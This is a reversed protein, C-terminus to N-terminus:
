QTPDGKKQVQLQIITCVVLVAFLFYSVAASYGLKNKDFAQQYIYQIMPRTSNAPGGKTIIYIQGFVKFSAIIELMLVLLFTPRLLPLKIKFLIQRKTAGDVEAVEQIERPIDQLASLYLLMPFGITWWVTMVVVTVWVLHGDQLWLPETKTTIMGLSKLIGNLLGRYPALNYITIFSAVSVSLVGPLYYSVRLFKRYGVNRNAFLALVLSLLTLLPVSYLVFKCTNFFAKWFQKDKMMRRYNELGVFSQRGMLNWKNLSVWFGQFIPYVVFITFLVFFPLIFILATITARPKYKKGSSNKKVSKEERCFM